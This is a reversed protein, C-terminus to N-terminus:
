THARPDFGECRYRPFRATWSRALLRRMAPAGELAFLMPELAAFQLRSGLVTMAILAAAYAPVSVVAPFAAAAALRNLGVIIAAIVAANLLLHVAARLQSAQVASRPCLNICRNCGQCRAGWRPRRRLGEGAMVIAGAPCDRECMACAKCHEDAAFMAALGFRGIWSYIFAIPLGVVIPIIQRPKTAALAPQGATMEAALRNAFKRAAGDGTDTVRRAEIGSQPPIVQRWQFPYTAGGSAIVRFGKRRVFRRAQWLASAGEGGWTAFVAAPQGRGKLGKLLDKVLSPMCFGLVPFCLVLLDGQFVEGPLDADMRLEAANTTWGSRRLEAGIVRAARATNGTGTMYLLIARGPNEMIELMARSKGSM